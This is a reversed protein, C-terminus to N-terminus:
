PINVVLLFETFQAGLLQHAVFPQDGIVIDAGYNGPAEVLGLSVPQVGVILATNEGIIEQDTNTWWGLHQLAQSSAYVGCSGAADQVSALDLTGDKNHKLAKLM